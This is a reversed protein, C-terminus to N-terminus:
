DDREGSAALMLSPLPPLTSVGRPIRAPAAAPPLGGGAKAETGRGVMMRKPIDAHQQLLRGLRALSVRIREAIESNSYGEARMQRVAEVQEDTWGIAVPM